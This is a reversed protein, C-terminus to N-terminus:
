LARRSPTVYIILSISFTILYVGLTFIVSGFAAGL